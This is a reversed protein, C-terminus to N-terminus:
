PRRGRLAGARPTAEVFRRTLWEANTIATGVVVAYAGLDFARRLQDPNYVRGELIIPRRVKRVLDTLLRFAPAESSLSAGTYGYLTTAILDAGLEAAVIGEELSSVDALIAAHNMKLKAARLIAGLSQGHPRRRQTCDLAVIAAGARCVREFSELTPTIYVPSGPSRLKEIGIIPLQGAKRVARINPAGDVRVGVAGEREAALALARIFAPHGLPSGPPAQCSVILGGQLKRIASSVESMHTYPPEKRENKKGFRAARPSAFRAHKVECYLGLISRHWPSRAHHIGTLV